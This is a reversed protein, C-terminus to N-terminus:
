SRVRCARVAEATRVAYRYAMLGFGIPLILQFWWAPWEGLLVDGFEKSDEVFRLSFWALLGCVATTALSRFVAIPAQWAPGFLRPALDIAIHKRDRSAAVAGILAVWLVALRVLGDAWPLAVSFADRLVIEASALVVLMALLLVLLANELWRGWRDARELWRDRPPTM